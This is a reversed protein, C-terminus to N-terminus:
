KVPVEYTLVVKRGMTHSSIYRAEGVPSHGSAAARSAALRANSQHWSASNLYNCTESVTLKFEFTKPEVKVIPEPLPTEEVVLEPVLAEEVKTEFELTEAPEYTTEEVTIDPVCEHRSLDGDKKRRLGTTGCTDCMAM